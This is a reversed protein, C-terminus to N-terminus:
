HSDAPQASKASSDRSSSPKSKTGKQLPHWVSRKVVPTDKFIREFGSRDSRTLHVGETPTAAPHLNLDRGEIVWGAPQSLYVVAESGALELGRRILDGRQVGIRASGTALEAYVLSGDRTRAAGAVTEESPERAGRFLAIANAAPPSDAVLLSGDSWWLSTEGTQPPSQWSALWQQKPPTDLPLFRFPDLALLTLQTDEAREDPVLTTRAFAYPRGHQPLEDVKWKGDDSEGTASAIDSGPLLPRLTLYFFDRAEHGIYRPFNMLQMGRFLRRGRFRFGPADDLEGEAQWTPQLPLALPPMNSADDVNYFELGTHGQNMDLHLGYECRAALMSQALHDADIKTGYFYAVFGERTLCLGSRVTQTDDQWGQPVGGWWTRGYPNNQGNEVLATLNQRFGVVNAPISTEPPWSGFATSGDSLRAVTAAYPLPPLYLTGEAMMGFDGHTGQFGGNFAAVVRRLVSPDRPIRGEGTAGTASKPEETGSMMHLEVISPDWLVILTRAFKRHEDTRIFTTLFATDLGAPAKVFPDGELSQWAGEGEFLPELQLELPAPPWQPNVRGTTEVGTPQQMAAPPTAAAVRTEFEQSEAGGLELDFKREAWDKGRYAVAKLWQMREDGIWPIARVRDVAWTVWNGPPPLVDRRERVYRAGTSPPADSPVVISRGDAELQLAGGSLSVGLREPAPVLELERESIGDYQGNQQWWALHWRLRQQWDFEAPIPRARGLDALRVRYTRQEDGVTWVALKGDASLDREAAAFTETLNHVEDIGLLTGEPTSRGRVLYVDDLAEPRQALVWATVQRRPWVSPTSPKIWRVDSPSASLGFDEALYEVLISEADATTAVPTSAMGCHWAVCSVLLLPWVRLLQLSSRTM